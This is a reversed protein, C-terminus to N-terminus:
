YVSHVYGKKASKQKQITSSISFSAKNLLSMAMSILYTFHECMEGWLSKRKEQMYTSYIYDLLKIPQPFLELMYLHVRVHYLSKFTGTERKSSFIFTTLAHLDSIEAGFM